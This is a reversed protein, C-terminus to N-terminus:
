CRLILTEQDYLSKKFSFFLFKGSLATEGIATIPSPRLIEFKDQQDALLYDQDPSEFTPKSSPFDAEVCYLYYLYVPAVSLFLLFSFAFFIKIWKQQRNRNYLYRSRIM